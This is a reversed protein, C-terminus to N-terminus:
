KGFPRGAFDYLNEQDDMNIPLNPDYEPGEKVQERTMDVLLAQDDWEVRDLRSMPILVHKGPWWNRTAAVAFRVNWDGDDVIFDEIHGIDGDTARVNYKVMEDVSHLHPHELDPGSEGLDEDNPMEQISPDVYLARPHIGSAWIGTGSWYYPWNYHKHYWIEFERTVPAHEDLGPADEVQERTMLVPFRKEDWNPDGLAIPSILVRKGPLWKGTDAVMYRMTWTLEDVLFDKCRGIDGDTAKLVYGDLEKLSRLM